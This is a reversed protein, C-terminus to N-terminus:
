RTWPQKSIRHLNTKVPSSLSTAFTWFSRFNAWLGTDFGFFSHLSGGCLLTLRSGTSMPVSLLWAGVFISKSSSCVINTAALLNVAILLLHSFTLQLPIALHYVYQNQATDASFATEMVPLLPTHHSLHPYTSTHLNYVFWQITADVIFWLFPSTATKSESYVEISSLVLATIALINWAGSLPCDPVCISLFLGICTITSQECDSSCSCYCKATVRWILDVILSFHFSM